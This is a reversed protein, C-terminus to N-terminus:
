LHSHPVTLFILYFLNSQMGRHDKSVHMMVEAESACSFTCHRCRFKQGEVELHAKRMHEELRKKRVFLDSCFDCKLHTQLEKKREIIVHHEAMNTVEEGHANMMHKRLKLTRITNYPCKDCQYGKRKVMEVPGTSPEKM